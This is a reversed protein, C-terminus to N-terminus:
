RVYCIVEGGLNAKKAASETLIGRPTSLIHFGPKTNKINKSKIYARRSPRSIRKLIELRPLNNKYVIDVRLKFKPVKGVVKLNEIYGENELIKLIALKIKSHPIYVRKIKNRAANRLITLMNSIPDM